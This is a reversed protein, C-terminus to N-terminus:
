CLACSSPSCMCQALSLTDKMECVALLRAKRSAALCCPGVGGRALAAAGCLRVCRPPVGLRFLWVAEMACAFRLRLSTLWKRLLLSRCLM